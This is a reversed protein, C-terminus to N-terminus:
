RTTTPSSITQIIRRSASCSIRVGPTSAAPGPCDAHQQLLESRPPHHQSALYQVDLVMDAGIEHQLDASWQNKRANPLHRNPTIMNPPGRRASRAPRTSSRCRRTPRIQQQVHLRRRDASQQHPVHVLEDPQPQLLHGVRRAARDERQPSLDRRPAAGWDKKNPETFEFGVPSALRRRSSRRTRRDLMSAVGDYTQVPTNREYRLGLSLTLNRTAQWVDNVFFGNRWQGVHGQMQDIPTIVTSPM